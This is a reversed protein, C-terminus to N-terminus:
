IGCRIHQYAAHLKNVGRSFDSFLRADRVHHREVVAAIAIVLGAQPVRRGLVVFDRRVQTIGPGDHVCGTRRASGLTRQDGVLHGQVVRYVGGLGDVQRRTRFVQHYQWGEM